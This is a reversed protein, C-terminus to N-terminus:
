AAAAIPDYKALIDAILQNIVGESDNADMEMKRREIETSVSGGPYLRSLLLRAAKPGIERYLADRVLTDELSTSFAWLKIGGMTSNLVQACAGEKVDWMGVFTSGRPGPPKIVNKINYELTPTIGFSEKMERVTMENAKSLIIKGTAFNLMAKDFDGIAQSILTVMVGNKGGMRMDAIVQERVAAIKRTMHFEDFLIHKKDQRISEIRKAHYNRYNGHFHGLYDEHLYFDRATVYRAMMYFVASQHDAAASGSKAVEDLDISVVRAEGLDFRTPRSLVPYARVAESLMRVFSKLLLETGDLSKKEGYLDQFQPTQSVVAVDSMLPVAFRQALSAEHTAGNEFLQDVIEWWSTNEDIHLAYQAIARDVEEAGEMNASYLKPREEDYYRYVQEIAAKCLPSMGPDASATGHPTLLTLMLNLQFESEHALPYRSGLQTGFPNVAYEPSNRMRISVVQHKKSPPLGHQLLSILGSSARGIDIIAILPLRVLGPSLCLALNIANCLVSKGSRPEAYVVNIWSSQVPSNPQYPWLKGDPSRFLVAGQRWPSAPRYFPLFHTVDDLLALAPTAVSKLSAGPGGAILAQVADGSVQQVEPAGWGEVARALQSSRQELLRMDDAPAWTALDMRLRVRTRGDDREAAQVHEIARKIQGNTSNSWKFIMAALNKFDWLGGKGSEVLMSMRWPLGTDATRVFLRQFIQIDQPALHIYMPAYSRGGIRVHRLSLEEADRPALQQSLRPWLGGSVDEPDRRSERTPIPDGFVCPRWSDDTWEPDIARRIERSAEHVELKACVLKQQRMDAVFADVFSSHRMRLARVARFMMPAEHAKPLLSAKLMEAKQESDEKRESSSLSSPRTYLAVLCVESSCNKAMHRVDEDFVDDLDLELRTATARMPAQAERVIRETIDPDCTFVTQMAHGGSQLYATLSTNLAQDAAEFEDKGVLQLSGEHRLITLLSGDKLVFTYDDGLDVNEIDIYDSLSQKTGTGVASLLGEVADILKNPGVLMVVLLGGILLAVMLLLLGM